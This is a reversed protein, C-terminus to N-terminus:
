KQQENSTTFNLLSLIFECPAQDVVYVEEIRYALLRVEDTFTPEGTLVKVISAPSDEPHFLLGDRDLSKFFEHAEEVTKIPELFYQKM